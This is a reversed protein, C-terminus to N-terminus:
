PLGMAQRIDHQIKAWIEDGRERWEKRMLWSLFLYANKATLDRGRVEVTWPCKQPREASALRPALSM